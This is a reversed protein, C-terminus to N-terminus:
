PYRPGGPIEHLNRDWYWGWAEFFYQALDVNLNLWLEIFNVRSSPDPRPDYMLIKTMQPDILPRFGVAQLEGSGASGVETTRIFAAGELGPKSAPPWNTLLRVTHTSGTGASPSSTAVFGVTYVFAARQPGPVGFSAKVTGGTADGILTGRAAWLGLPDRGDGRRFVASQLMDIDGTVAM